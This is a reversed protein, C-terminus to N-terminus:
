RNRREKFGCGDVKKRCAKLGCVLSKNLSQLPPNKFVGTESNGHLSFEEMCM